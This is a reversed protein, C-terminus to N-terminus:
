LDSQGARKAEARAAPAELYKSFDIRRLVPLLLLGLLVALVEGVAVELATLLFPLGFTLSLVLGVILGNSVVPCLASLVPVATKDLKLKSDTKNAKGASPWIASKSDASAATCLTIMLLVFLLFIGCRPLHRKM